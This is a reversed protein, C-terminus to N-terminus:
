LLRAVRFGNFSDRNGTGVGDRSGARIYRPGNNWSGGRVVRQSCDGSEMAISADGSADDYSAHYCDEVWQWANGLM